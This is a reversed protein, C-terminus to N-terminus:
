ACTKGDPAVTQQWRRVFEELEGRNLDSVAWLEMGEARGHTLNFGQRTMMTGRLCGAATGAPWVLLNIRHPGRAYVLAAVARV